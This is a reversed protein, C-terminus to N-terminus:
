LALLMTVELYQKLEVAQESKLTEPVKAKVKLNVPSVTYRIADLGDLFALLGQYDTVAVLNLLPRKYRNRTQLQIFDKGPSVEKNTGLRTGGGGEMRSVVMRSREALKSIALRMEQLQAFSGIPAFGSKIKQLRLQKESVSKDLKSLSAKLRKPSVEIQTLKGFKAEIRNKARSVMNEAYSIQKDLITYFFGYGGLMLAVLLFLIQNQQKNKLKKWARKVV